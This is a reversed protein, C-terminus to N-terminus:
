VLPWCVKERFPWFTFIKPKTVVDPRQWIKWVKFFKFDRRLGCATCFCGYALNQGGAKTQWDRPGAAKLPSSTPFTKGVLPYRAIRPSLPPQWLKSPTSTANLLYLLSISSFVRHCVASGEPVLSQQAGFTLLASTSFCQPKGPPVLPLSDVQWHLLHLLPPHLWFSGKSFSIAVWELIRAQSIGHVSFGQRSYNMLEWSYSM